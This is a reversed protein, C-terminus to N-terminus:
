TVPFQYIIDAFPAPWLTVAMVVPVGRVEALHQIDKIQYRVDTQGSTWYDGSVIHPYALMTGRLITDEVSGRRRQADLRERSARPDLELYVCDTAPYYGGVFGTGYCRTHQKTVEQTDPDRCPCPTGFRRAKLLYGRQGARGSRFRNEWMRLGHQWTRLDAGLLQGHCPYAPSYYYSTQTTLKVRYHTWQTKGYVRQSDDIAYFAETPLGVDVWDGEDLAANNEALARQHRWMGSWLGTTSVQLQFEYPGAETFSSLLSWEVRTGGAIKPFVLLRDFVEDCAQNCVEAPCSGGTVAAAPPEGFIGDLNPHREGM